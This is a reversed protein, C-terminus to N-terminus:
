QPVEIVDNAANDVGAGVIRTTVAGREFADAAVTTDVFTRYTISYTLTIIGVLPDGRDDEKITIETAELISDGAAGGLYPDADMAAEIQEALADLADDVPLATTHGVWGAIELKLTRLLERPATNESDPDTTESLTYVSLAPLETKKHPDVRTKSVRAGASTAAATLITVVAERIVRRQHM